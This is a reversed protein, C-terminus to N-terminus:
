RTLTLVVEGQPSVEEEYLYGMNQAEERVVEAAYEQQLKDMHEMKGWNGGYNDYSAVGDKIAVPYSWGKLKFSVDADYSRGYIEVKHKGTKLQIGLKTCVKQLVSESKLEVKMTVIHSM